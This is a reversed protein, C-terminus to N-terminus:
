KKEDKAVFEGLWHSGRWRRKGGLMSSLVSNLRILAGVVGCGGGGGRRAKCGLGGDVVALEVVVVRLLIDRQTKKGCRHLGM